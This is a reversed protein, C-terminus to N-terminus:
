LGQMADLGRVNSPHTYIKHFSDTTPICFTYINIIPRTSIHSEHIVCAREATITGRAWVLQM